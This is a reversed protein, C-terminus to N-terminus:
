QMRPETHPQFMKSRKEMAYKVSSFNNYRDKKEKDKSETPRVAGMM